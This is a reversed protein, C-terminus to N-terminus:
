SNSEHHRGSCRDGEIVKLARGQGCLSLCSKLRHVGRGAAAWIGPPNRRSASSGACCRRYQARYHVRVTAAEQKDSAPAQHACSACARLSERAGVVSHNPPLAGARWRVM